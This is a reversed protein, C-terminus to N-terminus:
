RPDHSRGPTLAPDLIREVPGLNHGLRARVGAHGRVLQHLEGRVRQTWATGIDAIHERLATIGPGALDTAVPPDTPDNHFRRRHELPAVHRVRLLRASGERRARQDEGGLGVTALTQTFQGRLLARASTGLDDFYAQWSRRAEKPTSARLERAIQDLQTVAVFLHSWETDPGGILRMLLPRLASAIVETLGSRDVVVLCARADALHRTSQAQQLDHAVGLGPLDVLQVGTALCPAAWGLEIDTVLPSLFGAANHELEHRLEPLHTGARVVMWDRRDETLISVLLSVRGRDQTLTSPSIRGAMADRLVEVLYRAPAAGFQSGQVLLRAQQLARAIPQPHSLSGVLEAVADCPTRRIALYPESAYVVRIPCATFSGLGGQPLLPMWDSLMTNLLTSKGVGAVGLTYLPLDLSPGDKTSSLELRALEDPAAAAIANRLVDRYLVHLSPENLPACSASM